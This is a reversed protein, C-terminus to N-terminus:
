GYSEIAAVPFSHLQLDHPSVFPTAEPLLETGDGLWRGRLRAVISVSVSRILDRPLEESRFEYTWLEFRSMVELEKDVMM